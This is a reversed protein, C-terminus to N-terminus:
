RCRSYRKGAADHFAMKHIAGHLDADTDNAHLDSSLSYDGGLHCLLLRVAAFPAGFGVVAAGAASLTAGDTYLRHFRLAPPTPAAQLRRVLENSDDAVGLADVDATAHAKAAPLATERGAVAAAAAAAVSTHSGSSSRIDGTVLALVLAAACWRATHLMYPHPM